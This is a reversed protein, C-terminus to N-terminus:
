GVVALEAGVHEERASIAVEVAPEAQVRHDRAQNPAAETVLAGAELGHGVEDAIRARPAAAPPEVRPRVEGPHRSLSPLRTRPKARSRLLSLASRRCSLTCNGRLMLRASRLSSRSVRKPRTALM